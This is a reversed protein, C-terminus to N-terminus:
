LALLSHRDLQSRWDDDLREGFAEAHLANVEDNTFAGRWEYSIVFALTPAARTTAPPQLSPAM